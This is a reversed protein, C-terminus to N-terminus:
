PSVTRRAATVTLSVQAWRHGARLFVVLVGTLVAYVVVLVVSLAVFGPIRISSDKLAELGGDELIERAAQNGRAWTLILDDRLVVTLLAALAGWAMLARVAWITRAVSTPLSGM